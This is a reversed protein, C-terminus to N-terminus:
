MRRNKNLVDNRRLTEDRNSGITKRGERRLLTFENVVNFPSFLKYEELITDVKVTLSQFGSGDKSRFLESKKGNEFSLRIWPIFIQLM